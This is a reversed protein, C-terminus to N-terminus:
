LQWYERHAYMLAEAKAAIEVAEVTGIMMLHTGVEKAEVLRCDFAVLASALAPAGTALVKWETTAFREDLRHGTRGAFIDSLEQHARGLTNICFVGNEIVRAACRSRKNICFVMMPPEVTISTVASATIGSLGAPGDTSVIHVAAGVRSMAERFRLPDVTALAALGATETPDVRKGAVEAKGMYFLGAVEAFPPAQKANSLLGSGIFLPRPCETEGCDTAMPKIKM